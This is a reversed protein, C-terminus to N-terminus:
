QGSLGVAFFLPCSFVWRVDMASSDESSDLQTAAFVGIGFLLHNMVDFIKVNLSGNSRRTIRLVMYIRKAFSIM